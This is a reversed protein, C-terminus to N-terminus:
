VLIRLKTKNAVEPDKQGDCREERLMYLHHANSFGGGTMARILEASGRQSSLYKEKVSTVPNLLGLGVVKILITSLTGVIPSLTKTKGFFLRPLVNEQIMKEGGAFAGGDGLLRM